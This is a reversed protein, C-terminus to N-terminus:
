PRREMDQALELARFAIDDRGAKVALDVVQRALVVGSELASARERMSEHPAKLFILSRKAAAEVRSNM